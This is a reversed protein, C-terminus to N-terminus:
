TGTQPGSLSHRAFRDSLVAIGCVAATEVRLIWNGFHFPHFGAARMLDEEEATFGGEPGVFWAASACVSPFSDDACDAAVSGFFCQECCGSADKVADCFRLSAGTEPVFANGSQKCGEFMLESWRGIVTDEGPLSVSRACVMSVIRRVGLEACQKLIQDMKQRRPPALYLDLAPGSPRPLNERSRLILMRGASVEAEGICGRGDMLLCREGESARLTKFLHASEGKELRVSGGIPLKALEDCRFRHM